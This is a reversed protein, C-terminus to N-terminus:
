NKPHLQNAQTIAKVLESSPIYNNHNKKDAWFKLGKAPRKIEIIDLFGDYAQMLYDAINDTDIEREDLIKVFESGLIWDNHEFWKQWDHEHLDQNLM